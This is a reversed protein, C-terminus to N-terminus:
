SEMLLSVATGMAATPMAWGPAACRQRSSNRIRPSGMPCGTPIMPIRRTLAWRAPDSFNEWCWEFVLSSSSDVSYNISGTSPPFYYTLFFSPRFSQSSSWFDAMWVGSARIDCLDCFVLLVPGASSKSKIVSWSRVRSPPLSYALLFSNVPIFLLSWSFFKADFYICREEVQSSKISRCLGVSEVQQILILVREVTLKVLRQNRRLTSQLNYVASYSFFNKRRTSLATSVKFTGNAGGM